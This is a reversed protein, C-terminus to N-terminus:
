RRTRIHELELPSPGSDATAGFDPLNGMSDAAEDDTCASSSSSTDDDDDDGDDDDGDDDDDDDDDSAGSAASSSSSISSDNGGGCSRSRSCCVDFTEHTAEDNSQLIIPADIIPPADDM